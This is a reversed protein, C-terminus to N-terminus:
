ITGGSTIVAAGAQFRRVAQELNFFMRERGLTKGLTSKQVLALPEPNLAALWLSIGSQQLKKEADTLMMLATYELDPIASCDIVVVQPKYEHILPWMLDGIRQANAFHIIGETKLILLGPCFEDEPHESSRPRFVSTGPKRGLVFVPRRNGHYILALLSLLVAVLIGQLTGIFVVGASAALAWSFEMVRMKAIARFERIKIMGACPVVVVAALTAQPMLHVLPALFFLVAVVVTGTVLGAIQSRAGSRRNVATQSTGGGSPMNHFLGGVLNALGLALLERNAEPRPEDAGRFARGAAVTEVFSMLAIGLAAPWLHMFWSLDPLGFPPLGGQVEGVREIGFRDLGLLGSVTIGALVTVLSAPVRPLFQQLGLQLCLMALALLMTPGSAQPLHHAIAALNHFFHGKAFHVGLLKPVQDVVIVLGIGAKFGTLVPESIFNAIMGFRLLSAVSLAAGVLVALTAAGTMLADHDGGPVAQHLAGATLIALTSTTTVSLPRSTGMVAYVAIPVLATYLGVVLPLGAIAAYAMAQPIVVAAATLGAVLDGRLWKREYVALWGTAPIWRALSHPRSPTPAESLFENAM